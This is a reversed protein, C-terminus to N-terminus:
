RKYSGKFILSIIFMLVTVVVATVYSITTVNFVHAMVGWCIMIVWAIAAGVFMLITTYLLVGLFFETLKM